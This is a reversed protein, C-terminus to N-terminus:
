SRPRDDYRRDWKRQWDGLRAAYLRVKERHWELQEDLSTQQTLLDAKEAEVAAIRAASEELDRRLQAIRRDRSAVRRRENRLEKRLREPEAFDTALRERYARKREAESTWKRPRGRRSPAKADPAPAEPAAAEAQQPDQDEYDGEPLDFPLPVQAPDPKRPM